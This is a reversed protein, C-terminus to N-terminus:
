TPEGALHWGAMTFLGGHIDFTVLREPALVVAGSWVRIFYEYGTDRCMAPYRDFFDQIASDLLPDPHSPHRPGLGVEAGEIGSLREMLHVLRDNVRWVEARAKVEEINLTIPAAEAVRGRYLVDIEARERLFQRELGFKRIVDDGQAAAGAKQTAQPKVGVHVQEGEAARTTARIGARAEAFKDELQERRIKDDAISKGAGIIPGALRDARNLKSGKKKRGEEILQALVEVAEWLEGMAGPLM